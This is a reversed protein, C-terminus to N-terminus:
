GLRKKAGTALSLPDYSQGVENSGEPVPNPANRGVYTVATPSVDPVQTVNTNDNATTSSSLDSNSQSKAGSLESGLQNVGASMLANSMNQAAQATANAKNTEIQQREQSLQNVNSLHKDSVSQKRSTDQSAINAITDGMARNASEKAQAVSAATGGGVAAAGDAKRVYNDQVEQARRMLNQGAKTDLYDTNYEKDYWAKEANKRYTNEREARRQMKKSKNGGVLSSIASGALMAATAVWEKNNGVFPSSTLNKPVRQLVIIESM